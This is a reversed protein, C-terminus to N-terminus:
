GEKELQKHRKIQKLFNRINIATVLAVFLMCAGMMNEEYKFFFIACAWSGVFTITNIGLLWYLVKKSFQPNQRNKRM